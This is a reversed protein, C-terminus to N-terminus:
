RPPPGYGPPPYGSGPAAGYGQPYGSGSYSPAYGQGSYAPPQGGNCQLQGNNNGIDGSCNAVNLATQVDRGDATRCIAILTSGQMRIAGCSQQYTGPPPAQAYAPIALGALAFAGLLRRVVQM